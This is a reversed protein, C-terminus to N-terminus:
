DEGVDEDLWERLASAYETLLYTMSHRLNEPDPEEDEDADPNKAWEGLRAYHELSSRSLATM